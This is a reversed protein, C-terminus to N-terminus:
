QTLPDILTTLPVFLGVVLAAAFVLAVLLGALNVVLKTTNDRLLLEKAVLASAIAVLVAGQVYGPVSLVLRTLVPLEVGFDAFIPAFRAPLVIAAGAALVLLGVAIVLVLLSAGSSAATRPNAQDPMGAPDSVWASRIEHKTM